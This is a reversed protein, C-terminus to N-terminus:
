MTTPLSVSICCRPHDQTRGRRAPAGVAPDAGGHTGSAIDHGPRQGVLTRGPREGARRAMRRPDPNTSVVQDILALALAAYEQGGDGMADGAGAADASDSPEVARYLWAPRGRGTPRSRLREIRGDAALRDLHERVTNPHQGLQDALATVTVADGATALARLM